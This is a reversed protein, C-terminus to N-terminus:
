QTRIKYLGNQIAFVILDATRNVKFKKMIKKQYTQVTHASLEMDYAIEKITNGECIMHLVEKERPSLHHVYQDETLMSKILTKQLNVSIFERGEAVERIADPLESLPADKSVFANAGNRLCHRITQADNVSSLVIIRAISLKDKRIAEILEIGSMQPMLLDTIIIDTRFGSKLEELFSAPNNFVSLKYDGLGDKLAFGIADTLLKHDDIISINM